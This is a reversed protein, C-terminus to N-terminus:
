GNINKIQKEKYIHNIVEQPVKGLYKMRVKYLVGDQLGTQAIDEKTIYFMFAGSGTYPQAIKRLKTEIGLTYDKFTLEFEMRRKIKYLRTEELTLRLILGRQKDGLRKYLVKTLVIEYEMLAPRTFTPPLQKRVMLSIQM